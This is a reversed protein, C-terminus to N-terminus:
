NIGGAKKKIKKKQKIQEKIETLKESFPEEDNKQVSPELNNQITLNTKKRRNKRINVVEPSEPAEQFHNRILFNEWTDGMRKM